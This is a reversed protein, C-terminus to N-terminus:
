HSPHSQNKSSHSQNTGLYNHEHCEQKLIAILNEQNINGGCIVLVINKNKITDKNKILAALPVAAAGEVLLHEKFLLLKISQKIEEESVTLYHDVYQQCFDFTISNPEINGATGDSLTPLNELDIITGSKISEFMVPSNQPLCGIIQTEPYSAKAYGGIGSILGGGGVSVYIADVSTEIDFIEKALTGQGLIIDPDNYPSIFVQDNELAYEKAKIESIMCDEGGVHITPNYLQINELKSSITSQPVFITAKIGLIKCAYAVAAGHNGSSAAVVGKQRETSTLTLLKNFAGRVKFSSTLQINELKLTINADLFQSLYEATILPTQLIYPKIKEAANEVGQKFDITLM